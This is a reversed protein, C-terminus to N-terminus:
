HKLIQICIQIKIFIDDIIILGNDFFLCNVKTLLIFLYGFVFTDMLIKIHLIQIYTIVHYFLHFKDICYREIQM